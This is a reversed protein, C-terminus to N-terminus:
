TQTIVETPRYHELRTLMEQLVAPEAASLDCSESEDQDLNFLWTGDVIPQACVCHRTEAAAKSNNGLREHCM